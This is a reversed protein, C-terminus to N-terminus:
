AACGTAHGSPGSRDRAPPRRDRPRGRDPRRRVRRRPRPPDGRPRAREDAILRPGPPPRTAPLRRTPHRRRDLGRRRQRRAARRRSRRRRCRRWSRPWRRSPRRAACPGTSTSSSGIPSSPRPSRRSTTPCSSRASRRPAGRGPGGPVARGVRAPKRGAAPRPAGPDGPRDRRRVGRGRRQGPGGPGRRAAGPDRRRRRDARIARAARGRRPLAPRDAAGGAEDPYGIRVRVLFRDLQAQPLAFTGEFEIPNQTALVVFPDPLPRTTGEVSVQREQMAELLASQTRPTARNIEDVLLINTFVPGPWSASRPRGRLHELRHRREAAPGAHGPHPGDPPRPGPRGGPRAADQRHGPRGRPPRPRRGAARRPRPPAAGRRRRRGQRGRARLDDWLRRGAVAATPRPAPRTRPEGRRGPGTRCRGRGADRRRGRGGRDARPRSGASSRRCSAARNPLLRGRDPRRPPRDGRVTARPWRRTTPRPSSRRAAAAALPGDELGRISFSERGTLGLSAASEGPLFQLPLVGMGVLNSRHIREYSEAIVARVGLLATGKAAWDRSSGSGYERGAIVILPVGERGTACRPTTSSSSRATPCTSRTRGKRARSSRPQAAPHQRVHRADDGRPPRAPRRVLQVRAAGVGHEQLWEGAPSWPPSRAPRRSTTPRSRTASSRSRRPRRRHRAVPAPEATLGDFFPPKRSTRRARRGLRLPRRRPDAAGALARRGRVRGRVDAPVARPRDLRRHGRRIEDPSPWIDALFVPRGDRAADRAARDDPRHRGPRRPRVRRRAAALRPLEGARASPDPGRLQPQGVPGGRRRPREDEIAKAIPEDLPGSNGICTTCGYGALAFGLQELPAM